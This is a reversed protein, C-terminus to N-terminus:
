VCSCYRFIVIKLHTQGVHIQVKALHNLISGVATSYFFYYYFIVMKFITFLTFYAGSLKQFIFLYLIFSWGCFDIWRIWYILFFFSYIYIYFLIVFFTVGYQWYTLVLPRHFLYNLKKKLLVHCFWKYFFFFIYLLFM